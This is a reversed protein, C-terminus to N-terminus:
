QGPITTTLTKTGRLKTSSLDGQDLIPGARQADWSLRFVAGSGPNGNVNNKFILEARKARSAVSSPFVPYVQALYAQREPLNLERRIRNVMEECEGPSSDYSDHLGLVAHGLEHIIVFGPDFAALAPKDGSLLSFDSFDIQITCTDIAAGTARSEYRVQNSIRAFSVNSSRPVSELDIANKMEITAILLERASVSGGSFNTRDGLTLFGDRDFGLEAFGTKERLSKAITELQKADLRKEGASNRLGPRYRFQDAGTVIQDPFLAYIAALAIANIILGRTFQAKPKPDAKAYKATRNMM